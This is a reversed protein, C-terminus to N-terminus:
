EGHKRAIYQADGAFDNRHECYDIDEFRNHCHMVYAKSDQVCVIQGAARYFFEHHDIMRINPDYGVKRLSDTKALYANPAKYVVEREDIITGAPIILKKNMRIQRFVDAKKEPNWNAAQVATLDVEQHSQLFSLQRHILSHSNLLFDDDLRMVYPTRVRNLAAILGKSLGSNYPLYIIEAQDIELPKKSDDAIIVRVNPYYRRISKYLRKAQRQRDFSKYIFTVNSEVNRRDIDSIKANGKLVYLAVFFMDHLYYLPTRFISRKLWYYIPKLKQKVMVEFSIWRKQKKLLMRHLLYPITGVVAGLTNMIVDTGQAVGTGHLYQWTEISLSLLFGALITWLGLFTSFAMGLPIYLLANMFMERFFENSGSFAFVYTHTNSYARGLMTYSVIAYISVIAGFLSIIRSVKRFRLVLCWIMLCGLTILALIIPNYVYINM